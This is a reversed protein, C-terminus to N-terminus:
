DDVKGVDLALRLMDESWAYTRANDLLQQRNQLREIQPLIKAELGPDLDAARKYYQISEPLKWLESLSDAAALWSRESQPVLQTARLSDQVAHLVAFQYLGHRYKIGRFTSEQMRTYSEIKQFITPALIPNAGTEEYLTYLKSTDPVKKTHEFVLKKLITKHGAARQLYASARMMLVTGEQEGYDIELANDYAEIAM